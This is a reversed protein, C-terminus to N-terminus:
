EENWTSPRRHPAPIDIRPRHRLYQRGHEDNTQIQYVTTLPGDDPQILSQVVAILGQPTRQFGICESRLFAKITGEFLHESM